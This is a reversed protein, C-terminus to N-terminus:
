DDFIHRMDEEERKTFYLFSFDLIIKMLCLMSIYDICIHKMHGLFYLPTFVLIFSGHSGSNSM